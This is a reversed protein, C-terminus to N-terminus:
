LAQQGQFYAYIAMVRDVYVQTEKFPPIGGHKRVNEPGANYAALALRYNGFASVQKALYQAGGAISQAPDFPDEVGLNKATSPMLQMLGKAGAKSVALHNMRSEAVAVAKIFAPSLNHDAGAQQFLDDYADLNRIVSLNPLNSVPDVDDWWKEYSDGPEPSDTLRVSGDPLHVMYIDAFVITGLLWLM